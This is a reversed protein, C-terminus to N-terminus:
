NPSILRTNPSILIVTMVSSTEADRGAFGRSVRWSYRAAILYESNRSGPLTPYRIATTGFRRQRRHPGAGHASDNSYRGPWQGTLLLRPASGQV